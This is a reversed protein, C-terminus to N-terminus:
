FTALGAAELRLMMRKLDLGGSFGGLGNHSVLRHCPIILPVPNRAAAQGVARPGKPVGVAQAVWGYSRTEGYPIHRLRDMVQRQFPSSGDLDVADPFRVREGSFYGTIRQPLDGFASPNQPSDALQGMERLVEERDQHPLALRMLGRSSALLGVWGLVTSFLYFDM